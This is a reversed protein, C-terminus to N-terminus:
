QGNQGDKAKKSVIVMSPRILRDKLTYGKRFEQVVTNAPVDPDEQQMMAEHYNPDFEKGMAEVPACGFKGLVDLFQKHTMRVGELLSEVKTDGEAHQIAMELSDLVPLLERILKENAYCVSESTERELRKRTNEMDAAIRLVRDQLSKIEEDKQDLLEQWETASATDPDFTIEETGQLVEPEVGQKSNDQDKRQEEAM